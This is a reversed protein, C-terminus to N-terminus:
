YSTHVYKGTYQKSDMDVIIGFIGTNHIPDFLVPRQSVREVLKFVRKFLL